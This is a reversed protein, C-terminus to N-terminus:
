LSHIAWDAYVNEPFGILNNCEEEKRKKVLGVRGHQAIIIEKM